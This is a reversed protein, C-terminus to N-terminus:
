RSELADNRWIPLASSLLFKMDAPRDTRRKYIKEQRKGRLMKYEKLAVFLQTWLFFLFRIKVVALKSRILLVQDPDALKQFHWFGLGSM